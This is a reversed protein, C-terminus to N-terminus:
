KTSKQTNKSTKIFQGNRRRVRTLAMQRRKESLSKDKTDTTFSLFSNPIKKKRVSRRIDAKNMSTSPQIEQLHQLEVQQNTESAAGLSITRKLRGEAFDYIIRYVRQGKNYSTPQLDEITFKVNFRCAESGTQDKIVFNDEYPTGQNKFQRYSNIATTIRAQRQRTQEDDEKRYPNEKKLNNVIERMTEIRQKRLLIEQKYKLEDEIERLLEEEDIELQAIDSLSTSTEPSSVTVKQKRSKRGGVRRKRKVRNKVTQSSNTLGLYKLAVIDKNISSQATEASSCSQDAEMQYSNANNTNDITIQPLKSSIEDEKNIITPNINFTDFQVTNPSSTVKNKSNNTNGLLININELTKSINDYQTHAHTYESNNKSIWPLKIVTSNASIADTEKLIKTCQKSKLKQKKVQKEKEKAHQLEELFNMERTDDSQFEPSSLNRDVEKNEDNESLEESTAEETQNTHNVIHNRILTPSLDINETVNIEQQKLNTDNDDNTIENQTICEESKISIIDVDEESIDTILRQILPSKEEKIIIPQDILNHYIYNM